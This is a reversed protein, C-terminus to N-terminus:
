ADALNEQPNAWCFGNKIYSVQSKSIGFVKAIDRHKGATARIMSVQQPSMRANPNRAGAVKPGRGKRRMDAINEAQTGLFLHAPNVCHRTDCRHCVCTGHFSDDTPIPGVLLEYALRHARIMPGRKGGVRMAAYRGTGLSGTWLWCEDPGRKDVHSWFRDLIAIPKSM